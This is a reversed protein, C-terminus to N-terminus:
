RGASPTATSRRPGNEEIDPAGIGALGAPGALVDRHLGFSLEPYKWGPWAREVGKRGKALPYPTLRHDTRFTCCSLPLLAPRNWRQRSSPLREPSADRRREPKKESPAWGSPHDVVVM